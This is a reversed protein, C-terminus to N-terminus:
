AGRSPYSALGDIVHEVGVLLKLERVRSSHSLATGQCRCCSRPELERVGHPPAVAGSVLLSM